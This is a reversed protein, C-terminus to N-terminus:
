SLRRGDRVANYPERCRLCTDPTPMDHGLIACVPRFRAARHLAVGVHWYASLVANGAVITAYAAVALGFRHPALVRNM